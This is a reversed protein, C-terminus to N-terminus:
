RRGGWGVVVEPYFFSRDAATLAAGLEADVTLHSAFQEALRHDGNLRRGIVAGGPALLAAAGALMARLSPVPMWDSINSTHILDFRGDVGGGTLLQDLRGGALRLREPGAGLGRIREQTAPDLYPPAGGEGDGYREAWIQLLFYNDAARWRRMARAFMGAFHHSFERDMSYTVAERGFRRELGGREFVREFIDLYHRSALAQAPRAVPDLGVERFAAALERFCDEFRGVRNVGAEIEGSRADWHARAPAPLHDRLRQWLRARDAPGGGRGDGVLTHQEAPALHILAQRRLEVLHLQAPNADVAIVEAVAPEALLSLATCGGSAVMLVRLPRGTSAALRRVVALDVLPDERVQSFALQSAGDAAGVSAAPEIV